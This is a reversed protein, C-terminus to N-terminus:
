SLDCFGFCSLETIFTKLFMVQFIEGSTKVSNIKKVYMDKKLNNVKMKLKQSGLDSMRDWFIDDIYFIPQM